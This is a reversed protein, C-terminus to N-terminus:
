DDSEIEGDVAELIETEIFALRSALMEAHESTPEAEVPIVEDLPLKHRVAHM